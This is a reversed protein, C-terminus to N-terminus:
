RAAPRRPSADVDRRRQGGARGLQAPTNNVDGAQDLFFACANDREPQLRRFCLAAAPRAHRYHRLQWCRGAGHSLSNFRQRSDDVFGAFAHQDLVGGVGGDNDAFTVYYLNAPGLFNQIAGGAAARNASFTSNVVELRAATTISPAAASAWTENAVFTSNAIRTFADNSGPGAAIAGGYGEARNAEFTSGSIRLDGYSILAGGKAEIDVPADAVNLLFHSGTITVEAPETVYLAGGVAAQNGELLSEQITVVGGVSLGGGGVTAVNNRVTTRILTLTGTSNLAGYSSQNGEIVSDTLTVTGQFDIIAGGAYGNATSNRITSQELALTGGTHVYIAGGYDAGANGDTLVLRRLTLAGSAQVRFLRNVNGGSLTILAGGDILVTQGGAITLQGTTITLPAQGCAFTIEGGTAVAAALAGATCSAPSGDGVVTAAPAALLWWAPALCLLVAIVFCIQLLHRRM